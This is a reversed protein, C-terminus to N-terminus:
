AWDEREKLQEHLKRKARLLRSKVTSIPIGLIQAIERMKYGNMYYLVVVLRLERDLSHIADYLEHDTGVPAPQEAIEELPINRKRSRLMDYCINVLIRTLWAEFYEKKRLDDLKRWARIVAEQM